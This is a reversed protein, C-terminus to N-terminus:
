FSRAIKRHYLFRNAKQNLESLTEDNTDSQESCSRTYLKETEVHIM